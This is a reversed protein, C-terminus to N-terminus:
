ELISVKEKEKDSKVKDYLDLYKSRYDAFLQEDMPLDDFTFQTFCDLVNKLRIIERFAQIFKAENEETRLNM